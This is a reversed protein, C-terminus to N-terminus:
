HTDGIVSMSRWKGKFFRWTFLSAQTGSYLLATFWAWYLASPLDKLFWTPLVMVPWPIILAALSVFRTDGAGKLAFSFCLNLADFLTFCAVFVLLWRAMTSVQSWLDANESNKFWSLYFSPFAIFTFSMIVMYLLSVQVGAITSTVAKDPSREGLHQGMLVSIAQAMGLAPLISLMMVTVAISSAALAADGQPMRGVIILFVTFALGELAWQAGSPLGYKLFRLMLSLDFRWGSWLGYKFADRDYAMFALGVVGSGLSALATAYGAGLVGLAPFGFNGFIMGYDLVVNLVLGVANIVLIVQTRGIGTFYGSAMATVAVPLASYILGIFYDKELQRVVESHGLMDFFPDALPILGLMLVGGVLSIYLAQWCAKGIMPFRQAGFYQAVFTTVYAATQQLLAMPTWFVGMVAMAAGLAETSYHGLFIRDITVQLNWFSNAIILPWALRLIESWESKKASFSKM